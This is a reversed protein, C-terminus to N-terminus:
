KKGGKGGGEARATTKVSVDLALNYTGKEKKKWDFAIGGDDKAKAAVVLDKGAIAKVTIQSESVSAFSDDDKGTAEIRFTVLHRGPAVYGDFRIGDDSAIAGTANEYVTAGDLRISAKAPTYYRGTTYTLKIQIRTSYLQSAVANARASSKFLEDRLSLYEQRLSDVDTGGEAPKEPEAPEAPKKAEPKADGTGGAGGAGAGGAGGAGGGGRGDSAGDKDKPEDGKDPTPPAPTGAPEAPKTAPPKKAPVKKPAAKPAGLALAPVLVIWAVSVSVLRM